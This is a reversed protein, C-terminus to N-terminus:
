NWPLPQIPEITTKVKYKSETPFQLENILEVMHIGLDAGLRHPREEKTANVLDVPGSMFDVPKGPAANIFKTNRAFPYKEHLAFAQVPWPLRDLIWGFYRQSKNLYNEARARNGQIKTKRLYVTERDNRLYPVILVGDDGVVTLSKDQPAVLGCTVRAVIDNDFELCGVSFDPAMSEVAIGKDEIQCSAFASVNRVPGFFAVLWALFYGAHEFTCGIEFEDKAPWAAGSESTWTWPSMMPAIMGDDYNAYVMRIQGIVGTHIAKWVTQATDSLISCPACALRVGNEKAIQALIEADAVNMALPKETYVHKGSELCAKTVEFHARPNTLNLVLEISADALLEERSQYERLQFHKCFAASRQQDLDFGGVIEANPYHRSNNVYFDAVFGCGIIAIKM